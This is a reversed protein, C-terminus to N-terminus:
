ANKSQYTIGFQQIYVFSYLKVLLEHPQKNGCIKM